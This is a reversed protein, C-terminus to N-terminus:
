GVRSCVWAAPTDARDVLWELLGNDDALLSQVEGLYGAALDVNGGTLGRLKNILAPLASCNIVADTVDVDFVGGFLECVEDFFEDSEVM